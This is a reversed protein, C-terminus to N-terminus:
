NLRATESGLIALAEAGALALPAASSGSHQDGPPVAPSYLCCSLSPEFFTHPVQCLTSGSWSAPTPNLKHLAM